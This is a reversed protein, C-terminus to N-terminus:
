DLCGGLDRSRIRCIVDTLSCWSVGVASEGSLVLVEVLVAAAGAGVSSEAVKLLVGANSSASFELAAVLRVFLEVLVLALALALALAALVLAAVVVVRVPAVVVSGLALM